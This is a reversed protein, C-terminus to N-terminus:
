STQGESTKMRVVVAQDLELWSRQHTSPLNARIGKSRGLITEKSPGSNMDYGFENDVLKAREKIFKVFDGFKPRQDSVIIEWRVGDM